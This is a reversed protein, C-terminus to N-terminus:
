EQKGSVVTELKLAEGQADGKVASEERARKRSTPTTADVSLGTAAASDSGNEIFLEDDWM